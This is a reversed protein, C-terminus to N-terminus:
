SNADFGRQAVRVALSSFKEHIASMEKLLEVKMEGDIRSIMSAAELREHISTITAVCVEWELPGQISASEKDAVFRALAERVEFAANAASALNKGRTLHLLDRSRSCIDHMGVASFVNRVRKEARQSAALAADASRKTERLQKITIWFGVVALFFGIVGMASNAYKIIGSLVM